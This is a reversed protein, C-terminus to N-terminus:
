GQRDFKCVDGTKYMMSNEIFPNKIYRERTIDDRNLIDM